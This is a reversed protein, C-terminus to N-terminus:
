EDARCALTRSLEVTPAFSCASGEGRGRCLEAFLESNPAVDVVDSGSYEDGLFSYKAGKNLFDRPPLDSCLPYGDGLFGGDLDPKPYVDHLSAKMQMPDIKNQSGKAKEINARLLQEDFGTFVRAFNM